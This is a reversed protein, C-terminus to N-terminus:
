AVAQQKPERERLLATIADVTLPRSYLYGQAQTCGAARVLEAQTATEVRRRRIPASATASARSRRLSRPANRVVKWRPSSHNISRLRTSAFHACIASRRAGTGFDDLAIRVGLERL